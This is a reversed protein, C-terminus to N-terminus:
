MMWACATSGSPPMSWGASRYTLRKPLLPGTQPFSLVNTPTDKQRYTRNLVRVQADDSLVISLEGERPAELQAAAAKVALDALATCNAWGDAQVTIDLTSTM